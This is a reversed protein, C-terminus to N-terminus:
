KKIETLKYEWEDAHGSEYDYSTIVIDLRYKHRDIVESINSVPWDNSIESLQDWLGGCKECGPCSDRKLITLKINSIITNRGYSQSFGNYVNARCIIGKCEKSKKNLEAEKKDLYRYKALMSAERGKDTKRYRANAAYRVKKQADTKNYESICKKCPYKKIGKKTFYWGEEETNYERGCKKCTFM